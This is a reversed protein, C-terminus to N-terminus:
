LFLRYDINFVSGIRKALKKGIPCQGKEIRSINAQSVGIMEGFKEQSLGERDRLGSLLVAWKPFGWYYKYHKDSSVAKKEREVVSSDVDYITYQEKMLEPM